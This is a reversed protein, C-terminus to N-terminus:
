VLTHRAESISSVGAGVGARGSADLQGENSRLGDAAGPSGRGALGTGLFPVAGVGAGTNDEGQPQARAAQPDRSGGTTRRGLAAPRLIRLSPQGQM